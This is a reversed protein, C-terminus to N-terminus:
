NFLKKLKKTVVDSMIQVADYDDVVGKLAEYANNLLDKRIKTKAGNVTLCQNFCDDSWDVRLNAFEKQARLILKNTFEKFTDDPIAENPKVGSLKRWTSLSDEDVVCRDKDTAVYKLHPMTHNSLGGEDEFLLRARSGEKEAEKKNTFWFDVGEDKFDEKKNQSAPNFGCEDNFTLCIDEDDLDPFEKKSKLYEKALNEHDIPRSFISSPLSVKEAKKLLEKVEDKNQEVFAHIDPTINGLGDGLEPFQKLMKEMKEQADKDCYTCKCGEEHPSPDKIEDM